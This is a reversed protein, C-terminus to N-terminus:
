GGHGPECTEAGGADNGDPDLSAITLRAAALEQGVVLAAIAAVLGQSPPPSGRDLRGRPAEQPALM